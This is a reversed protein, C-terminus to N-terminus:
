LRNTKHVLEVKSFVFKIIDESIEHVFQLTNLLGDINIYAKNINLLEM